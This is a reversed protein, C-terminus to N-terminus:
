HTNDVFPGQFRKGHGETKSGLSPRMLFFRFFFSFFCFRCFCRRPSSVRVDESAAGERGAIRCASDRPPLPPSLTQFRPGHVSNIRRANSFPTCTTGSYAGNGALGSRAKLPSM